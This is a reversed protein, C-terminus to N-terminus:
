RGRNERQQHLSYATFGVAFVLGVFLVVFKVENGMNIIMRSVSEMLLGLGIFLGLTAMMAFLGALLGITLARLIRM